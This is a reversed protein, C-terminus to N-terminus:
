KQWAVDIMSRSAVIGLAEGHPLLAAIKATLAGDGCGLDLVRETGQLGLEAILKTGWEKQHASAKEYKKGDFEHPM